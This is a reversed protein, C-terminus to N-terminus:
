SGNEIPTEIVEKAEALKLPEKSHVLFQLLRITDNKRETPIGTIMRKYTKNLTRPLSVLAEEIAAEQPFKALSDL